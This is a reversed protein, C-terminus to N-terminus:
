IKKQNKVNKENTFKNMNKSLEASSRDLPPVDFKAVGKQSIANLTVQKYENGLELRLNVGVGDAPSGDPYKVNLFM